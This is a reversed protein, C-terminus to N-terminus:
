GFSNEGPRSRTVSTSNSRGAISCKMSRKASITQASYAKGFGSSAATEPWAIAPPQM